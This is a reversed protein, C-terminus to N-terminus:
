HLSNFWRDTAVKRWLVNRKSPSRSACDLHCCVHIKSTALDDRRIKNTSHRLAQQRQSDTTPCGSEVRM